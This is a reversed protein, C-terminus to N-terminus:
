LITIYRYKVTPCPHITYIEAHQDWPRLELLFGPVWLSDDTHIQNGTQQWRSEHINAACYKTANMFAALNRVPKTIPKWRLLDTLSRPFQKLMSDYKHHVNPGNYLNWCQAHTSGLPSTLYPSVKHLGNPIDGFPDDM